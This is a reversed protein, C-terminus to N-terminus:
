TTLHPSQLNWRVHVYKASYRASPPPLHMFRRVNENGEYYHLQAQIVQDFETYHLPLERLGAELNQLIPEEAYRWDIASTQRLAELGDQENQYCQNM